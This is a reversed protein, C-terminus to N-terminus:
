TMRLARMAPLENGALLELSAGGGTSIHTMDKDLNFFKAASASDGGGIISVGGNKTMRALAEAISKTGESFAETEFIGMPGNWIITESKEIFQKIEEESIPGIDVGIENEDIEGVLREGIVEASGIDNTVRFDKPLILKKGMNQAIKVIENAADISESDFISKGIGYGLAKLLTFVMGGGIILYDAETIFRKILPLKSGIKAGGLIITLPRSPHNFTEYLFQFEKEMLFGPAMNDIYDTVGVNSAHARHATGFADNIFCTGHKALVQSFNTDNDTEGSHFRLNELLHVEGPQLGLSVDIADESVCDKSFKISMELHDCLVEGVPMLTLKDDVQGGPRGLHSMLVTSGGNELCHQITPLAERIRFDDTVHGNNMPVNLDLRILARENEIDLSTLSNM